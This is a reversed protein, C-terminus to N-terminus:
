FKCQCDGCRRYSGLNWIIGGCEPCIEVGQTQKRRRELMKQRENKADADSWRQPQKPPEPQESQGNRLKRLSKSRKM